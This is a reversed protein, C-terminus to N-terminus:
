ELRASAMYSDLESQARGRSGLLKIKLLFFPHVELLCKPFPKQFIARQVGM